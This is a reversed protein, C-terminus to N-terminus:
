CTKGAGADGKIVVFSSAFQTLLQVRELLQTQSDLELVRLEYSLSM